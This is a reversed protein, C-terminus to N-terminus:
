PGLFFYFDVEKQQMFGRRTTALKIFKMKM